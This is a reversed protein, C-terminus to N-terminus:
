YRVLIILPNARTTVILHKICMKGVELQQWPQATHKVYNNVRLSNNKICSEQSTFFTLLITFFTLFNYKLISASDMTSSTYLTDM